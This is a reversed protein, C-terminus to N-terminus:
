NRIVTLSVPYNGGRRGRGYRAAGEFGQGNMESSLVGQAVMLRAMARVENREFKGAVTSARAFDTTALQTLGQGCQRVLENWIYGGAPRLEGERFSEQGFGDVVAAAALLENLRDVAGEIIGFSRAPDLTAYAQAIQLLAQFQAHNEARGAVLNHAEELFGRAVDDRKNNRAMMAIQLLTNIREEKSTIRSLLQRAEEFNGREAARWPMQRELDRLLQARQQPNTFNAIIQRAREYDNEGVAKWVAQSYLQDRMEAPAKAAAELMADLTGSQMVEQYEQWVRQQPPITKEFDGMRRRLTAARTPAYKEVEPMIGKLSMFLGHANGTRHPAMGNVATVIKEVLERRVGEDVVVGGMNQLQAGQASNPNAAERARIMQLLNTAVNIAEHDIGFEEPRLSKVIDGALKAAADKDKAQVQSLVNLLGSSVGKGLSEEAMRLAAKPDQAAIQGALNLEMAAEQDPQKYDGGHYFIQPQRTARLFELALKADRGALNNLVENRFQAVLNTTNYVQPDGPDVEGIMAALSEQVTKYMERARAEDHPWLLDAVTMQVRIRNEALKLSSAESSVEELLAFAGKVLEKRAKVVQESEAESEGGSPPPTAPTTHVQAGVIISFTLLSLVAAPVIRKTLM